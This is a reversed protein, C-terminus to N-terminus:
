IQGNQSLVAVFGALAPFLQAHDRFLLAMYAGGPAMCPGFIALVRAFFCFFIDFIPWIYIYMYVYIHSSGYVGEIVINLSASMIYAWVHHWSQVRMTILM